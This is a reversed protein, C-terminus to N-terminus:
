ENAKVEQQKLWEITESCIRYPESDFGLRNGIDELRADYGVDEGTQDIHMDAEWLLILQPPIYNDWTMHSDLYEQPTTGHWRVTDSKHLPIGINNLLDAGFEEHFPKGNIYGVDHLLGLVYMENKNLNYKDANQYMYEAVGHMHKIRSDTILKDM